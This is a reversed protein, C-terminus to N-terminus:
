NRLLFIKGSDSSLVIEGKPGEIINRIRQHLNEFLRNEEVFEANDNMTIINLHTLKLAGSLLKGELDKFKKGSYVILSSPAISPIYYKRPQEMGAKHTGEGVSLPAWYEKGYSIIPWGYNKGKEILNIEDGGRPGHEIAWLRKTKKDYFLGQINRHGYSYIEDLANPNEVFPNDKPITGDLNLRIITGAHTTLDQGNPRVGRDGISFYLHGDEDFTIRSGFHRSTDSSSKTILLDKWQQFKKDVFKVKALTTVGKNKIEKVYTFYLTKDKEYNPSKKVDLLGGQGRHYVTPTNLLYRITKKELNLIGIKGNLETFLIEKENLFTMGWVKGLNSAIEDLKYSFTNTKSFLITALLLTAFIFLKKM